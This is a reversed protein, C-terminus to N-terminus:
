DQQIQGKRMKKLTELVTSISLEAPTQKLGVRLRQSYNFYINIVKYIYVKKKVKIKFRDVLESTLPFYWSIGLNRAKCFAKQFWTPFRQSFKLLYLWTRRTAGRTVYTHATGRWMLWHEPYVGYWRTADTAYIYKKHRSLNSSLEHRWIGLTHMFNVFIFLKFDIATSNSIPLSKFVVHM